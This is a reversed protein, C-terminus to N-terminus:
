FCGGFLFFDESLLVSSEEVFDDVEEAYAEREVAYGADVFEEGAIRNDLMHHLALIAPFM